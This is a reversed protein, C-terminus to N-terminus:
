ELPKGTQQYDVILTSKDKKLYLEITYYPEKEPASVKYANM